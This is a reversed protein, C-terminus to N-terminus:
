GNSFLVEGNKITHQVEYNLLWGSFPSNKGASVFQSPECTVHCNSAILCLDATSGISLHGADINLTQAPNTSLSAIAQPLSMIGDDVLKLTLPLLTELGSIGPLTEAFPGLKADKDLPQHHASISGIVGESLAQQLQERDRTTRLPPIVHCLSDYNGIDHETLHLHHISVDATINLGRQQAEKIMLAASGSSINHFHANVGTQEILSIDRAIAITEAAEPIGGLGLRSSVIGEHICGQEQLWPDTATIFLTMELTAAYEMARRLVLTNQIPNLGNSVGLCGAQKLAFMESLLEGELGQTLAGITHVKAANAKYAQDEILDVVAPTDIIPTTDPPLCVTTIGSQIAAQSETSLSAPQQQDEHGLRTSLDVLGPAVILNDAQITKDALFGDPQHDFAVIKGDAIYIDHQADINNKPDIVHGNAIHLKM